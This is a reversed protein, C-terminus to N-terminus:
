KEESTISAIATLPKIYQLWHSVDDCPDDVRYLTFFDLDKHYDDIITTPSAMQTTTLLWSLAFTDVTM